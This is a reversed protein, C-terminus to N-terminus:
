LAGGDGDGDADAWDATEHTFVAVLESIIIPVSTMSMMVPATKEFTAASPSETASATSKASSAFPEEAPSDLDASQKSMSSISSLSTSANASFLLRLESFESMPMSRMADRVPLRKSKTALSSSPVGLSTAEPAETASSSGSFSIASLSMAKSSESSEAENISRQEEAEEAPRVSRMTPWIPMSLISWIASRGALAAEWPVCISKWDSADLSPTAPRM